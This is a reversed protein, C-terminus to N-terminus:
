GRAAGSRHGTGARHPYSAIRAANWQCEGPSQSVSETTHGAYDVPPSM